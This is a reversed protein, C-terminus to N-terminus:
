FPFESVLVTLGTVEGHYDSLDSVEVLQPAKLKCQNIKIEAHIRLWM